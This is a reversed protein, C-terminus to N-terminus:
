RRLSDWNGDWRECRMRSCSGSPNSLSFAMRDPLGGVNHHSKIVASPGVFSVSEIVDPYLTGQALFKVGKIRAAEEEFVAIFENGIIKRKLEPDGVGKLMKFFREQANVVDLNIHFHDRFVSEVKKAEGKRLLGNDVFICTLRDGVARHILVATVSSDVGGSLGCIIKNKGVQDRIMAVQLDIFSEMTWTPQCGCISLVFNRLLATGEPTHVVEPHFQFGLIQGNGSSMAAVPSNPSNAISRFGAPLSDVRDGHSMWVEMPWDRVGAFITHSEQAHIYARGYERRGSSAVSGGLLKAIAQMGYCIGLIPVGLEIIGPDLVPSREDTVSYPSGSLIIGKPEFDRIHDLSATCPLIQCYVHAERVRRAILQTYQSGFDLILIRNPDMEKTPM